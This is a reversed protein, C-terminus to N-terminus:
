PPKSRAFSKVARYVELDSDESDEVFEYDAIDDNVVGSMLDAKSTFPKGSVPRPTTQQEVPDVDSM